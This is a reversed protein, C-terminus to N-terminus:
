NERVYRDYRSDSKPDGSIVFEKLYPMLNFKKLNELTIPSCYSLAFNTLSPFESLKLVGEETLRECHSLNLYTLNKFTLLKEIDSDLFDSYNSPKFQLSLSKLTTMRYFYNLCNKGVDESNTIELQKLKLNHLPLFSADDLNKWCVIGLARLKLCTGISSLSKKTLLPSNSIYLKKLLPADKLYFIGEDTFQSCSFTTLKKLWQLRGIYVLSYNTLQDLYSLELNKLKPLKNLYKTSQDSLKKGSLRLNELLPLSRLVRIHRDEVSDETWFKIRKLSTMSQINTLAISNGDLFFKFHNSLSRDLATNISGHLVLQDNEKIFSAYRFDNTDGKIVFEKLNPMLNFTKLNERTIPPCHSLHFYTLSHFQSLKEIGNSTLYECHELNLSTINQFTLLKDIDRDLFYAAKSSQSPKFSLWINKLSTMHYFNDLCNKTVNESGCIQLKNLKLNQLHSFSADSLNKWYNVGLAQLNSLKGIYFLSKETLHPSNHLMLTKLRPTEKLFFIGKDTLHKCCCFELKKLWRLQGIYILSFDTLQDLYSLQLKKLNPFKHLYKISRNSLKKGSLYLNELLPFSKLARIHRDEVSDKCNFQIGKLSTSTQLISLPISDGEFFFYFHKSLFRVLDINITDKPLKSSGIRRDGNDRGEFLYNRNEFYLIKLSSHRRFCGLGKVTVQSCKKISLSELTSINNLFFIGRNSVNDCELIDLKKLHKLNGLFGLSFDNLKACITFKLQKLNPFKLLPKFSLSLSEHGYIEIKKIQFLRKFNPLTQHDMSGDYFTLSKLSGLTELKKLTEPNCSVTNFFTLGKLSVKEMLIMQEDLDPYNPSNFTIYSFAKSVINKQDWEFIYDTYKSQCAIFIKKFQLRQSLEYLENLYSFTTKQDQDRNLNLIKQFLDREIIKLVVEGGLYSALYALESPNELQDRSLSSVKLLDAAQLFEKSSLDRISADDSFSEQFGDLWFSKFFHFHDILFRRQEDSLRLCIGDSFIISCRGTLPSDSKKRLSHHHAVHAQMRLNKSVQAVPSESSNEVFSFIKHFVHHPLQDWNITPTTLTSPSEM